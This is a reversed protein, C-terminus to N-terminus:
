GVRRIECLSSRHSATGSVPDLVATGILNNFNVGEPGFPDYGTADLAACAQWWGHEGVAVRPDIEANLRARARARGDPTEISVWDGACIGRAAAAQPHLDIEPDLARGRLSPLARFQTQLFLAPKACTLVLPFRAALDPRAIPGILPEEWAPLPPHGHDLFRECYLEIKRSPTAFGRATGGVDIEAYKAYRQAM